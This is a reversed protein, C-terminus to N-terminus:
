FGAIDWRVVRVDLLTIIYDSRSEVRLYIVIVFFVYGVCVTMWGCFLVAMCFGLSRFGGSRSFFCEFGMFRVDVSDGEVEVVVVVM